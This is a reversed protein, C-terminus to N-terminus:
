EQEGTDAAPQAAPAAQAPTDTAQMRKAEAAARLEREAVRHVFVLFLGSAAYSVVFALGAWLAVQMPATEIGQSQRYLSLALVATAVLWGAAM